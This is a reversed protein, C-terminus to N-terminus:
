EPSCTNCATLEALRTQDKYILENLIIANKRIGKIIDIVTLSISHNVYVTLLLWNFPQM